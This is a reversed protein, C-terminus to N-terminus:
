QGFGRRLLGQDGASAAQPGRPCLWGLSPDLRRARAAEAALRAPNRPPPLPQIWGGDPARERRGPWFTGVFRLEEYGERALLADNGAGLRLYVKGGASVHVLRYHERFTPEAEFRHAEFPGHLFDVVVIEPRWRREVLAFGERAERLAERFMPMRGDTHVQWGPGGARRPALRYVLYSGAGSTNYIRGRPRHREIWDAAGVPYRGPRLGVRLLGRDRELRWATQLVPLIALSGLALVAGGGARRRLARTAAGVHPAVTLAGVILALPLERAVALALGLFSLSGLSLTLDLRRWRRLALALGGALLALGLAQGPSYPPLLAHLEQNHLERQLRAHNLLYPVLGPGLPGANLCLLAALGWGVLRRLRRGSPARPSALLWRALEVGVFGLLALGGYVAAPHAYTWALFLPVLWALRDTRGDRYALLGSLLLPLFIWTFLHPRVMVRHESAAVVLLALLASPGAGAGRRRLSAHLVVGLAAGALWRFSSLGLELGLARVLGGLLLQFLLHVPEYPHNSAYSFIDDTPIRGEALLREVTALHWGWDLSWVPQSCLLLSVLAVFAGALASRARPTM